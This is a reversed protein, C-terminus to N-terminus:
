KKRLALTRVTRKDPIYKREYNTGVLEGERAGAPRTFEVRELVDGFLDIVREMQEFYEAHDTAIRIEGGSKLCQILHPMNCQQITRKKLHSKKPWPDPFYIHLCDVSEPPVYLSLLVNADMHTIRVNPLAWRGIRDVAFLYFPRSWEIGIFDAEPRARAEHLIFTGKGTGIEIHVPASRGFLQAFDIPGNLDESRLAVSPYEHLDRKVM